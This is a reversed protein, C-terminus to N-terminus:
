ARTTAPAVLRIQIQVQPVLMRHVPCRGAIGLLQSRQEESLEGAFSMDMEIRDVMGFKADSNPPNETLVRTYSVGAHVGKLPYQHREAFMQVTMNACAGLSAMLLEHANPGTDNGGVDAPEDSHFVHPGISVTQAYRLPGSNVSVNRPM